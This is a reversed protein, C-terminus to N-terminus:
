PANHEEEINSAEAGADREITAEADGRTRLLMGILLESVAM